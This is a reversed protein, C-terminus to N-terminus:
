SPQLTNQASVRDTPDIVLEEAQENKTPLGHVKPLLQLKNPISHSSNQLSHRLSSNNGVQFTMLINTEMPMLM